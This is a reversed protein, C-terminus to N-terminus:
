VCVVALVDTYYGLGPVLIYSTVSLTQNTLTCTGPSKTIPGLGFDRRAQLKKAFFSRCSAANM